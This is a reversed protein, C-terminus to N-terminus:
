SVKPFHFHTTWNDRDTSPLQCVIKSEAIFRKSCLCFLREKCLKIECSRQKIQKDCLYLTLNTSKIDFIM